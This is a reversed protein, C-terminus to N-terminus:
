MGSTMSLVAPTAVIIVIGLFMIMLPILIKTSAEEGLQKATNKRMEWCEDAQAKLVPVIEAGGRRLNMVIISVFKTIEKVRCRRAFEEYAIAEPKGSRIEMLAYRMEDYLVHEKRNEVIIKEWAKSITMGANVLLVLKNIFEPFELQIKQRRKAIEEDLSSDALFPVGFFAIISIGTLMIGTSADGQVSMICGVASAMVAALLATTIRYGNQIYNYFEADKGHLELVKQYVTNKYRALANKLAKPLLREYDLRDCIELGIPLFDKLAYEEKDVYELYDDYKGKSGLYSLFFIAAFAVCVGISIGTSLFM